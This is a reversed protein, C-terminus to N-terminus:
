GLLKQEMYNLARNNPAYLNLTTINEQHISGHIMIYCREKNMTNKKERFDVKDSLLMVEGVKKKNTNECYLMRWGKVKKHPLICMVYFKGNRNNKM